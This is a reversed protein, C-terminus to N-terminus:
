FIHVCMSCGWHVFFICYVSSLDPGPHGNVIFFHSPPSSRSAIACVFLYGLGQISDSTFNNRKLQLLLAHPNFRTGANGYLTKYNRQKVFYLTTCVDSHWFAVSQTSILLPFLTKLWVICAWVSEKGDQQGKGKGDERVGRETVYSL